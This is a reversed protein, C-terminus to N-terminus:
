SEGRAIAEVRSLVYGRESPLCRQTLVAANSFNRYPFILHIERDLKEPVARWYANAHLSTLSGSYNDRGSKYLGPDFIDNEETASTVDIINGAADRAQCRRRRAETFNEDNLKKLVPGLDLPGLADDQLFTPKLRNLMAELPNKQERISSGVKQIFLHARNAEFDFEAIDVARVDYIQYKVTVINGSTTEGIQRRFTRKQVWKLKIKSIGNNGVTPRVSVLVPTSTPSAIVSTNNLVGARGLETLAATLQTSNRLRSAKAPDVDYFFAYQDGHEEIREMFAVLDSMTIQGNETASELHDRVQKWTGSHPLQHQKLLEVVQSKARLSELIALLSKLGQTM